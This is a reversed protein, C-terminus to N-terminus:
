IVAGLSLARHSAPLCPALSGTSVLNGRRLRSLTPGAPQSHSAPQQYDGATRPFQAICICLLCPRLQRLDKLWPLGLTWGGGGAPHLGLRSAGPVRCELRSLPVRSILYGYTSACLYVSRGHYRLVGPGEEAVFVNSASDTNKKYIYIENWLSLALISPKARQRQFQICSNAKNLTKTIHRALFFNTDRAQSHPERHTQMVGWCPSFCLPHCLPHSPM